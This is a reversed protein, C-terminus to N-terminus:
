GRSSGAGCGWEASARRVRGSSPSPPPPVASPGSRAPGRPPRAHSLAPCLRAPLGPVAELVVESGPEVRGRLRRVAGGPPRGDSRSSLRRSAPKAAPKAPIGHPLSPQRRFGTPSRTVRKAKSSARRPCASEAWRAVVDPTSSRRARRSKRSSSIAKRSRVASARWPRPGSCSSGPRTAASRRAARAGVARKSRAPSRGRPPPRTPARRHDPARDRPPRGGGERRLRADRDAEPRRGREGGAPDRPRRSPVGPRVGRPDRRDGGPLLRRRRPGIGEGPGRPPPGGDPPDRRYRGRGPGRRRAVDPGDRRDGEPDPTRGRRRGRAGERRRCADDRARRRRPREPDLGGDARGRGRRRRGHEPHRPAEPRSLGARARRGRRRPVPGHACFAELGIKLVGAEPAVLRALQLIRERESADLAVAIRKRGDSM